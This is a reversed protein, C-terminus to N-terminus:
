KQKFFTVNAKVQELTIFPEISDGQDNVRIILGSGAFPTEGFKFFITPKKLMGEEDVVISDGYSNLLVAEVLECKLLKYWSELGDVEVESVTEKESDIFIAKM